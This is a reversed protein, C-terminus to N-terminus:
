NLCHFIRIEALINQFSKKKMLIRDFKFNQGQFFTVVAVPACNAITGQMYDTFRIKQKEM